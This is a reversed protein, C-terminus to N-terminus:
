RVSKLSKCIVVMLPGKSVEVCSRILNSLWVYAASDGCWFQLKIGM